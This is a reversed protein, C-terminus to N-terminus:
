NRAYVKEALDLVKQLNDATFKDQGEAAEEATNFSGFRKWQGTTELKFLLFPAKTSPTKINGISIM